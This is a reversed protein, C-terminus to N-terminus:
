GLGDKQRKPKFKAGDSSVDLLAAAGIQRQDPYNVAGDCRSHKCAVKHDGRRDFNSALIQLTAVAPELGYQHIKPTGAFWTNGEEVPIIPTGKGESLIM